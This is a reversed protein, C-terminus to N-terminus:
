RGSLKFRRRQRSFIQVTCECQCQMWKRCDPDCLAGRQCQVIEHVELTGRVDKKLRAQLLRAELRLCHGRKRCWTGLGLLTFFFYCFVVSHCVPPLSHYWSQKAAYITLDFRCLGRRKSQRRMNTNKTGIFPHAVLRSIDQFWLFSTFSLSACSNIISICCVAPRRQTRRCSGWPLWDFDTLALICWYVTWWLGGRQNSITMLAKCRDNPCQSSQSRWVRHLPKRGVQCSQTSHVDPAFGFPWFTNLIDLPNSRYEM